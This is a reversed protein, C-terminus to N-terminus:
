IVKIASYHGSHNLLSRREKSVTDHYLRAPCLTRPQVNKLRSSGFAIFDDCVFGCIPYTLFGRKRELIRSMLCFMSRSPEPVIVRKGSSGSSMTRRAVGGAGGGLQGGGRV